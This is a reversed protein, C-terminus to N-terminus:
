ALYSDLVFDSNKPGFNELAYERCFERKEQATRKL